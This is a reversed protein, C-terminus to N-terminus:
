NKIHVRRATWVFPADLEGNIAARWGTGYWFFDLKGDGNLDTFHTRNLSSTLEATPRYDMLVARDIIHKPTDFGVSNSLAVNWGNRNWLYDMKGDNNFDAVKQYSPHYSAQRSGNSNTPYVLNTLWQKPQEFGDKNSLAVNWGGRNWMYDSAGDGNFDGILQYTANYSAHRIGSDLTVVNPLWQKPKAFGTKNSLAVNWGGRNWMLDAAGDGNFDSVHTYPANYTIQRTGGTVDSYMPLWNAAQTFQTGDSLAVNWGNAHWLLDVMGDGNMDALYQYSGKYTVVTSGDALQVKAPLWETPQEFTKGNSKAVNWGDTYWIYDDYGDNNVDAVYRYTAQTSKTKGNTLRTSIPLWSALAPYGDGENVFGNGRDNTLAVFVGKNVWLYDSKGDGNFDGVFEGNNSKTESVDTKEKDEDFSQGILGTPMQGNDVGNDGTKVRAMVAAHAQGIKFEYGEATTVWITNYWRRISGGDALPTEQQTVGMEVGNLKASYTYNDPTPTHYHITDSKTGDESTIVLEFETAYTLAGNSRSNFSTTAVVNTDTLFNYYKNIVGDFRWPDVWLQRDGGVFLPDIWMVGEENAAVVKCDVVQPALNTYGEDIISGNVDFKKWGSRGSFTASNLAFNFPITQSFETYNEASSALYIRPYEGSRSSKIEYTGSESDSVILDYWVKAGFPAQSLKGKVTFDDCSANLAITNGCVVEKEPLQITKSDIVDGNESFMEILISGNITAESLAIPLVKSLDFPTISNGSPAIDVSDTLSRNGLESDIISLNYTVTVDNVLNVIEGSISLEDCNINYGVDVSLPAYIGADWSMDRENSMISTCAVIGTDENADSDVLHGSGVNKSTFGFGGPLNNFQAYYDGPQLHDFLYKGDNDTITSLVLTDDSTGSEGDAGCHYLTVDVGAVGPENSDQIGDRNNDYWVLDGYAADSVLAPIPGINGKSAGQWNDSFSGSFTSNEVTLKIGVDSDRYLASFEGGTLEIRFDFLDTNDNDIYGMDLVNGTVLDGSYGNVSGTLAFSGDIVDGNADLQISLIVEGGHAHAVIPPFLTNSPTSIVSLINTTTDFHTSGFTSNFATNPVGPGVGILTNANAQSSTLLAAMSIASLLFTPMIKKVPNDETNGWNFATVVNM